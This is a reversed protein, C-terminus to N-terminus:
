QTINQPTHQLYQGQGEKYITRRMSVKVMKSAVHESAFAETEPADFLSPSQNISYAIKRWQNSLLPVAFSVFTPVFTAEPILIIDSHRICACHLSIARYWVRRNFSIAVHRTNYHLRNPCSTRKLSPARYGVWLKRRAGRHRGTVNSTILHVGGAVVTRCNLVPDTSDGRESSFGCIHVRTKLVLPSRGSNYNNNNNDRSSPKLAGSSLEVTIRIIISCSSVLRTTKLLCLIGFHM